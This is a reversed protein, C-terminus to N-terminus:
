NELKLLLVGETELLEDSNPALFKDCKRSQKVGLGEFEVLLEKVFVASKFEMVKGDDVKVVKSVEKKRRISLKLCGM